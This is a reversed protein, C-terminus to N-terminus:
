VSHWLATFTSGPSTGTDGIMSVTSHLGVHTVAEQIEPEPTAFYRKELESVIQKELEVQRAEVRELAKRMRTTDAM